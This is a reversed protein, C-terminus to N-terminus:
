VYGGFGFELTIKHPSEEEKMWLRYSFSKILSVSFEVLKRRGEEKLVKVTKVEPLFDPYSEYDSVIKFFDEPSCDFYETIEAKAM